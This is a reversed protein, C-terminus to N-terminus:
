GAQGAQGRGRLLSGETVAATVVAAESPDTAVAAGGREAVVAVARVVAPVGVRAVAAVLQVPVLATTAFGMVQIVVRVAAVSVLARVGRLVEPSVCCPMSATEWWPLWRWRPQCPWWGVGVVGAAAPVAAVVIGVTRTAVVCASDHVVM